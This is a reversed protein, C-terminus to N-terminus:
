STACSGGFTCCRSACNRANSDCMSNYTNLTNNTGGTWYNSNYDSYQYTCSASTTACSGLSTCCRSSCNRSLSNCKSSYYGPYSYTLNTYYDSYTWSCSFIDNACNGAFTCCGSGCYRSNSNCWSNWSM